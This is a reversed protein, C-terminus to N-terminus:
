LLSFSQPIFYLLLLAIFAGHLAGAVVDTVYHLLTYVRSVCLLVALVFLLFSYGPVHYMSVALAFAGTAHNSPFGNGRDHEVLPTFRIQEFPRPRKVSRSIPENLIRAVVAATIATVSYALVHQQEGVSLGYGTTALLILAIMFIPTWQASVMLFLTLNPLRDWGRHLKNLLHQEWLFPHTLVGM